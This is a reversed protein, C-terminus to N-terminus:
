ILNANPIIKRKKPRKAPQQMLLNIEECPRVYVGRKQNAKEIEKESKVINDKHCNSSIEISTKENIVSLNSIAQFDTKSVNISDEFSSEKFNSRSLIMESFDSSVELTEYSEERNDLANENKNMWNEEFLICQDYNKWSSNQGVYNYLNRALSLKQEVFEINKVLCEKIQRNTNFNLFNDKYQCILTSLQNMANTIKSSAVDTWIVFELCINFFLECFNTNYYVNNDESGVTTCSNVREEAKM